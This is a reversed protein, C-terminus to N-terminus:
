SLRLIWILDFRFVLMTHHYLLTFGYSALKRKQVWIWSNAIRLGFFIGLYCFVGCWFYQCNPFVSKCDIMTCSRFNWVLLWLGLTYVSSFVIAVWIGAEMFVQSVHNRGNHAALNQRITTFEYIRYNGM